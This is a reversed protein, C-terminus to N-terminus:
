FLVYGYFYYDGSAPILQIEYEGSLTSPLVLTGSTVITTYAVEGDEDLLILTCGYCSTDFSLTYDEISVEPVLVPGRHPNTNGATPDEIFVQLPIDKCKAEVNVSTVPMLAMVMIALLSKIKVITM